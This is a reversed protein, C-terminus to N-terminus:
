LEGKQRHNTEVARIRGLSAPIFHPFLRCAQTDANGKRVIGQNLSATKISSLTGSNSM